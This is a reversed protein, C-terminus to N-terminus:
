RISEEFAPLEYCPFYIGFSEDQHRVELIHYEKSHICGYKDRTLKYQKYIGKNFGEDKNWGAFSIHKKITHIKVVSELPFAYKGELNALYLNEEDAFMRFEKNFYEATQMGKAQIKIKGDKDIYFFSLIDVKKADGPVSLENYIAAATSEMRSLTQANEETGMVAKAKQRGWLWLILWAALCIGGSWFIWSANQYAQAVSVDAKLIGGFSVFAYLGFIYQAIRLATPHKSKKITTNAKEFLANMANALADSPTETLFEMGNIQENKKDATLDIALFPKM